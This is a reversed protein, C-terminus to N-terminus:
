HVLMENLLQMDVYNKAHGGVPRTFTYSLEGTEEDMANDYGTAGMMMQAAFVM